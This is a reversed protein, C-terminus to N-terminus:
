HELHMIQQIDKNLDLNTKIYINFKELFNLLHNYMVKEYIKSFYNLVSIPRYNCVKLPSGSKYIPVVKALNLEGPLIGYNLSQNM